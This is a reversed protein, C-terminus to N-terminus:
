YCYTVDSIDESYPLSYESVFLRDNNIKQAKKDFGGSKCTIPTPLDSLLTAIGLFVFKGVYLDVETQVETTLM